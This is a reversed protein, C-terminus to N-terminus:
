RLFMQYLKQGMDSIPQITFGNLGGIADEFEKEEHPPIQIGIMVATAETGINRYCFMTVNWRPSVVKLFSQLAGKREPFMVKLVTENPVAGMYSRPRGGVFTSMLSQMEEVKSIDITAFGRQNLREILRDVDEQGHTGVGWMIHAEPGASYRCLTCVCFSCLLVSRYRFETIYLDTGDLATEVFSRFTGAQESITSALMFERRAGVDALESVLRLNNFNINAGSCVAVM